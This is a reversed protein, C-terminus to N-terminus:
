ATASPALRSRTVLAAIGLALAIAGGFTGNNSLERLGEAIAGAKDPFQAYHAAVANMGAAMGLTGEALALICGALLVVPRGPGPRSAAVGATAIASVLLVWMSVGGDRMFEMM